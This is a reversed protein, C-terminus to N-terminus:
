LDHVVTNVNYVYFFNCLNDYSKHLNEEFSHLYASKDRQRYIICLKKFDM